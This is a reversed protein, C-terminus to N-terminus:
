RLRTTPDGLLVWTKRVDTDPSASTARMAAEGLTLQRGGVTSFMQRYMEQNMLSQGEPLCMGTSAWVAAAGANQRLLAEGLSDIGPDNFYGNLCTMMIFVTLRDSNELGPADSVNLLDAKWQDVSGHGSYNVVKQGRNIADFLKARATAIDTEGRNLQGIKVELTVLPKLATAMAEFDYGDNMDAVLLMEDSPRSQDYRIVKAVMAAADQATRVPLRGIALEPVGDDNVDAFWVDSAAEMFYSDFLKTPVLDFSGFGLYNKSDFSSEGLFLVWRPARKWTTRAYTLFDKVAQPSVDGNSFEDQIDEINVVAVAYGQSQRHARLTAAATLFNSHTIILLDAGNSSKRWSSPANAAIRVPQKAQTAAFALLTKAGGGPISVSVAYSGDKFAQVSGVLEQVSAPNTVNMVKIQNSTFGGITVQENGASTFQLEDSDAKYTHEYTLRLTDILSLDSGGNLSVLSVDNAGEKLLSHAVSFTASGASQSIFEMEGLQINNLMVGVRHGVTTVGQLAVELLAEETAALNVNRLNIDKSVASSGVISGFFNETDGNRLASFYITRDKREVTFRFSGDGPAGGAGQVQQIRQGATQGAVVWYTHTNTVATDLGVGYFEIAENSSFTGDEQGDVRMPVEQGDVYLQLLRPDTNPNLGAAVLQPQTIRHWGRDRVALKVAAVGALDVVNIQKGAAALGSTNFRGSAQQEPLTTTPYSIIPEGKGLQSLLEPRSHPPPDGGVSVPAVPGHLTHTGNVDIDEIYYLAGRKGAPTDDWWGYSKGATLPAAGTVLASGALIDPNIRTLGRKEARYINFGLNSAEFGTKWQLFVGGDYGTAAFGSLRVATPATATFLGTDSFNAPPGEGFNFLTFQLTTTAGPTAGPQVMFKLNILTGAGTYPTGRAAALNVTGPPSENESVLSGASITGATDSNLFDLIASSFTLTFQFGEVGQGTLNPVLIPITIMQGPGAAADPLTVTIASGLPGNLRQGGARLAPPVWNGTVDGILLAEYNQNTQSTTLPNYSRSPPIFRWNGTTNGAVPTNSLFQLIRTADTTSLGGNNTADGAQAQCSNITGPTTLEQLIRTADTTSIGNVDGTKSPLVTYDSNKVLGALTYNGTAASATTKTAAGIATLTVGPVPRGELTTPDCDTIGYDVNGTISLGSSAGVECNRSISLLYNGTGTAGTSTTGITVRVFYTGSTRAKWVLGEAPASPTTGTLTGPSPTNNSTSGSDNVAILVVGGSDLLELAPNIPTNNRDPDGDLSVFISDGVSATFSFIDVDTSPAPAALTGSFYNNAASNATGTTGNPETEATASASSPQIAAYVRYPEAAVGTFQNVRLFLPSGNAVTGAVNPALSGFPGDNNFDDYELTDTSTTVRLDLDTSNSAVSNVLAFIRSGSAPTGLSYFDADTGPSIAGEIGCIFTDATAPTDNAESEQLCLNAEITFTSGGIDPDSLTFEDVFIFITQNATLAICKIEEASGTLHRNSAATCTGVVVPTGPTAAPCTSAAYVVLNSESSYDTVTFSYNGAVPATFSYVVDRGSATSAVQGIGTFCASGSLQYDDFASRNTGALPTDLSLGTPTVCTDNTPPLMQSIKLQVATNGALPPTADFEWVVIFYTTGGTLTTMVSAQLTESVCEDDGCGDTIGGTPLETFTGGCAGTSSTYIAMITDDVTTATGDFACTSITYTATTSPIFRYWISRSTNTQCSPAAPDGTTTADTVDATVTSFVPFPGAGNIVEAGACQDNPPAVLPTNRPPANAAAAKRKNLLQTKLDAIDSSRRAVFQSYRSLLEQQERTLEKSLIFNDYLARSIVTDAELESIADAAEFRRLVATEEESFPAGEKLQLLLKQLAAQRQPDLASPSISKGQFSLPGAIHASTAQYFLAEPLILWAILGVILLTLGALHKTRKTPARMIM